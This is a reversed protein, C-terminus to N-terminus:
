NDNGQEVECCDSGKELNDFGAGCNDTGCKLDGSCDDDSDCDGEGVGCPKDATCCSDEKNADCKAKDIIFFWFITM